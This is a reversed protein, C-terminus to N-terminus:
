TVFLLNLDKTEKLHKSYSKPHYYRMKPLMYINTHTHTDGRQVVWKWYCSVMEQMVVVGGRCQCVFWDVRCKFLM